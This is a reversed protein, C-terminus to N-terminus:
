RSAALKEALRATSAIARRHQIRACLDDGDYIEVTFVLRRGSREVLRARAVLRAGVPSPLLHEITASVGVTVEGPELEDAVANHCAVEALGLVFPTSAAAPFHAGFAAATDDARVDKELEFTSM